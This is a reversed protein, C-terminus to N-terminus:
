VKKIDTLLELKVKTIKLAAQWALGPSLNQLIGESLNNVNNVSLNYIQYYSKIMDKIQNLKLKVKIIVYIQNYSRKRNPSYRNHIKWHKRRFM